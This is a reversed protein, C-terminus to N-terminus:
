RHIPFQIHRIKGNKLKRDVCARCRSCAGETKTNKLKGTVEPCVLFAKDSFINEPIENGMWAIAVNPYNEYQRYVELVEHKNVPDCSLYLTLNKVKSLTSVAFMSRTYAWFQVEPHERMVVAWCMAYEESYFDGGTHIRFYPANRGEGLLWYVVSNKIINYVESVPRASVLQTNYDEVGAYAKYLRRLNKDYCKEGCGGPGETMGPCTGGEAPSGQKLSFTNCHDARFRVKSNNTLKFRNMLDIGEM